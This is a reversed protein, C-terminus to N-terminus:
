KVPTLIAALQAMNVPKTLVYDAGALRAAELDDLSGCGTVVIVVVTSGFRQQLWAAVRLGSATDPLGLDLLVCVPRYSEILAVAAAATPATRVAYGNMRLLESLTERSDDDDEVVVVKVEADTM